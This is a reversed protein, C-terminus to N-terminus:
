EGLVLEYTISLDNENYEWYLLEDIEENSIEIKEWNIIKSSLKYWFNNLFRISDIKSSCETKPLIFNNKYLNFLITWFWKLRYNEDIKKYLHENSEYNHMSYLWKRIKWIEYNDKNLIIIQMLERDIQIKINLKNELYEIDFNTIKDVNKKNNTTFWEEKDIDEFWEWLVADLDLNPDNWDIVNNM